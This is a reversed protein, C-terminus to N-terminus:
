QSVLVQQCAASIVRSVLSIAVNSRVSFESVDRKSENDHVLGEFLASECSDELMEATDSLNDDILERRASKVQPTGSGHISAAIREISEDGFPSSQIFGIGGSVQMQHTETCFSPSQDVALFSPSTNRPTVVAINRSSRRSLAPSPPILDTQFISQIAIGRTSNGNSHSLPPLAESAVVTLIPTGKVSMSSSSMSQLAKFPIMKRKLDEFSEGIRIPSPMIISSAPEHAMSYDRIVEMQTVKCPHFGKIQCHPCDIENLLINEAYDGERHVNAIGKAKLFDQTCPFCIYNGCCSSKWMFKYYQMCLPCYYKYTDAEEGHPTYPISAKNENEFDDILQRPTFNHDKSSSYVHLENSGEYQALAMTEQPTLISLHQALVRGDSSSVVHNRIQPSRNSGQPTNQFM